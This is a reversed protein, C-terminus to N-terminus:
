PTVIPFNPDVPDLLNFLEIVKGVDGEARVRGDGFAEVADVTRLMIGNFLDRTLVLEVHAGEAHRGRVAGFTAHEVRTLWREDLDTFTWNIVIDADFARPGNLRAGLADFAQEVTVAGFLDSSANAPPVPRIGGRLEQAGMLYFNRWTSNENQYGLQEFVDAQLQKADANAEDAFVVHTLLQAAWRYEGEDAAARAAAVVNAAGGMAAVYRPASQEPPLPWLNAPHGDFWGLYRQYIAKVNHSVSGYYGRCSWEQALVPPLEVMEAIEVGTYGQNLLRLTQDHLYRYVDRQKGLFAVIRDPGWCPWHHQAFLVDTDAAYLEITEDLYKSWLLADRVLAGRLTVVNHLNHTANEAACTARHDPLHINMEAPAETGPTLQFVMRVGDIVHEEGTQTISVTPAILSVRGLSTTKGLGADVQGRPGKDLLAGYMYQARRSMATGAYVNEAVAHELFGDPALVPVRGSTVEADDVIGKVGGFHDVHSHTYLVGTVPRDGRHSRYLALAAAATEVSILPDFVVVGTRGEIITMNSLDLGRVQYIGDTVEFLGHVSNLQAQRWLSPNVTDPCDADISQYAYPTLDWVVRGSTNRIVPDDLQAVLGRRADDFDQRDHFPLTM